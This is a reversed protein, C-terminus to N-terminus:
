ESSHRKRRWVSIVMVQMDEALVDFIIGLPGSFHIRLSKERSEGVTQPSNTLLFDVEDAASTVANRDRASMWITALDDRADDSWLVTWKM